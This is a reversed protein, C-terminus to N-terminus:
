SDTTTVTVPAAAQPATAESRSAARIGITTNLFGGLLVAWTALVATGLGIPFWARISSLPLPQSEFPSKAERVDIISNTSSAALKASGAFRAVITQRGTESPLYVLGAAGSTDTTATGLLAEREGLLDVKEYFSVDQDSVAKGDATSLTASLVLQGKTQTTRPEGMSVTTAAKDTKPAEQASAVAAGVIGLLWVSLLALGTRALTSRSM